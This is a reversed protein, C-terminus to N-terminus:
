LAVMVRPTFLCCVAFLLCCVMEDEWVVSCGEVSTEQRYQRRRQWRRGCSDCETAAARDAVGEGPGGVVVCGLRASKGVERQSSCAPTVGRIRILVM